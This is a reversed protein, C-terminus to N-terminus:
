EDDGVGATELEPEDQISESVKIGPQPFNEGIALRAATQEAQQTRLDDIDISNLKCFREDTLWGINFYIEDARAQAVPDIPDDSAWQWSHDIQSPIPPLYDPLRRAEFLWWAFAVDLVIDECEMRRPMNAANFQMKDLKASAFNHNRSSGIAVNLPMQLPRAADAVCEEVFEVYRTTPQEARLQKMDWGEPLTLLSNRATPVNLFVDDDDLPRPDEQYASATSFLVGAHNAATEAAAQVALRYRRLRALPSLSTAFESVGRRQGPRLEKFWHIVMEAPIDVHEWPNGALYRDDGPHVKLRRYTLPNGWEDVRLGDDENPDLIRDALPNTWLDCESLQIDVKVPTTLRPNFSKQAFSEGDVTKARFMTRLKPWLRIKKAWAHFEREIRKNLQADFQTIQLTPGYGVVANTLAEIMGSALSGSEFCEYRARERIRARTSKSAAARPSLRDANAWWAEMEPTLGAADYRAQLVRRYRRQFEPGLSGGDGGRRSRRSQPVAPTSIGHTDIVFHYSMM